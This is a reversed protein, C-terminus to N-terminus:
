KRLIRCVVRLRFVNINLEVKNSVMDLFPFAIHFIARCLIHKRIQHCLSQWTFSVFPNIPIPGHSCVVPGDRTSFIVLNFSSPM